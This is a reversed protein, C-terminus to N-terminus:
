PDPLVADLTADAKADAILPSELADTVAEEDPATIV